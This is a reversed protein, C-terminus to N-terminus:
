GCQAAAADSASTGFGFGPSPSATPLVTDCEAPAENFAACIANKLSNPDRGASSQVGNIVLTPSGQVGYKINEAGYISFSPFSGKWTTKDAYDKSIGFKADTAAVCTSITTESFGLTARCGASDSANLFCQLYKYYQTNYEQQVCYQVLQEDIEKQGHMAYNVFKIKIDAKNGLLDVVPLLGKEIQTGYPCHSMVFVEVVPKDTKPMNTPTQTQAAPAAKVEDIVLGSPFFVKGDKSMYSTIKQGGVDVTVKYIEGVDEVKDITSTMGPQLLNDDIFSKVEVKIQEESMAKSSGNKTLFLVLFLVAVVLFVVSLIMWIKPGCKSACCKKSSVDEHMESKDHKAHKHLKSEKHDKHMKHEKHDVHEDVSVETSEVADNMDEKAM